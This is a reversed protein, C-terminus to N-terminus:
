LSVGEQLTWAYLMMGNAISALVVAVVALVPRKRLSAAVAVWVPFLVLWYRFVSATGEGCAVLMIAAFCLAFEEYLRRRLLLLSFALMLMTSCGVLTAAAGSRLLLPLNIWPPSFAWNWGHRATSTQAFADGTALFCYGWFLFLGLPALVLPVFREPASWPRATGHLRERRILWVLAFIVFLVGPPRTASLLAAAIGAALYQERRLYYIAAALLLLFLSESLAASFVLSQPLVCILTTALLATTRDFGVLLTYRHIYVLAACFCLNSVIIAALLSNGAFLPAVLRIILPYLPFFAFDTAGPIAPNEAPLYGQNAVILYWNCDWRCLLGLWSNYAPDIPLDHWHVVIAAFALAALRTVLFIAALPMLGGASGFRRAKGRDGFEISM